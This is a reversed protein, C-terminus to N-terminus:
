AAGDSDEDEDSTGSAAADESAGGLDRAVVPDNLLAEIRNAQGFSEDLRFRLQPSVRLNVERALQGRFFGAARNLAAIMTKTDIEADVAVGFPVVFATANRLDPSVDVATVTVSHHALDPDDLVDRGIIRALAHRMEEGVRLQRQSGGRAGGKAAGGRTGASKQKRTM